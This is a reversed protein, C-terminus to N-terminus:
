CILCNELLDTFHSPVSNFPNSATKWTSVRQLTNCDKDKNHLYHTQWFRLLSRLNTLLHPEVHTRLAELYLPLESHKHALM